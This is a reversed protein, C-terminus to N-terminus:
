EYITEIQEIRRIHREENSFETELWLKVADQAEEVSMFRAGLSLINADNHERSLRIIDLNGGYYVAARINPLRNAVIAEGQGSGGIIIGRSDEIDQFVAVTAQAIFEPYDDDPNLTEAGYDLIEYGLESLFPILQQKLEFGAHDSAIHIKM